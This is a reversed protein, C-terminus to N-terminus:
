DTAVGHQELVARAENFSGAFPHGRYIVLSNGPWQAALARSSSGAQLVPVCRVEALPTLIEGEPNELTQNELDFVAVWAGRAPIVARERQETAWLQSVSLSCLAAVGILIAGLKSLEGSQIGVVWWIVGNAGFVVTLLSLVFMIVRRYATRRDAFVLRLGDSFLVWGATECLIQQQM